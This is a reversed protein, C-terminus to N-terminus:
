WHRWLDTGARWQLRILLLKRHIQQPSPTYNGQSSDQIFCHKKLRQISTKTFSKYIYITYKYINKSISSVLHSEHNVINSIAEVRIDTWKYRFKQPFCKTGAYMMKPGSGPYVRICQLLSPVHGGHLAIHGTVTYDHWTFFQMASVHKSCEAQM